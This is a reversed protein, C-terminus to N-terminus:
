AGIGPRPGEPRTDVRVLEAVVYAPQGLVRLHTRGLYEGIVGLSLLQLGSFISIISALFPFGAVSTGVALYRGVVYVLIGFGFVSALLGIRTVIRLPATSYGTIVDLAYRRLTRFSYGSRGDARAHHAVEVWAFRTTTWALLADISVGPGTDVDFGERLRTRFARFPGMRGANPAGLVRALLRRTATSALRRWWRHATEASWGYVVDVGPDADLVELLRPIEEPPNQLDDDLTVIVDFSAHRIGALLAAHQGANRGLRLAVVGPQQALESAVAWTGPRSGDDVLVLEWSRDALVVAAREHLAVLTQTTNHVPVCLTVGARGGM